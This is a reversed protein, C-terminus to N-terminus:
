RRGGALRLAEPRARLRLMAAAGLFPGVALVAFAGPWGIRGQLVPLLQISIATLLFGLVAQLALASGIREPAALESVAASFQASDAVVSIGWVLAAAVVLWGRGYLLGTAIASSGSTLM